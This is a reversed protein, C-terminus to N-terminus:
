MSWRAAGVWRRSLNDCAGHGLFKAPEPAGQQKRKLKLTITKARASAACLRSSVEGCLEQAPFVCNNSALTHSHPYLAYSTHVGAYLCNCSCQCCVAAVVGRWMAEPNSVSLRPSISDSLGKQVPFTLLLYGPRYRAVCSRFGSVSLRPALTCLTSPGYHLNPCARLCEVLLHEKPTHIQQASGPNPVELLLIILKVTPQGRLLSSRCPHCSPTTGLSNTHM